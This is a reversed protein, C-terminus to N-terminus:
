SVDICGMTHWQMGLSVHPTLICEGPPKYFRISAGIIM